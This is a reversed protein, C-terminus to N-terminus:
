PSNAMILIPIICRKGSVLLNLHIEIALWDTIFFDGDKAKLMDTICIYDEEGIKVINVETDQVRIKAM